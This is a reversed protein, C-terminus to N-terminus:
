IPQKKLKEEIESKLDGVVKAELPNEALSKEVNQVGNMVTAHDRGGFTEGIKKYPMGLIERCLYMAVHRAVAIQAVRSKGFLIDKTFGYHEAVIGAIKSASVVTGEAKSDLLPSVAEIAVGLDIPGMVGFTKVYNSLKNVAGELERVSTSFREAFFAFVEPSIESPDFGASIAKRRAIKVMYEPTPRYVQVALGQSFRTKLREDMGNLQGPHRDATLVIQKGANYLTQFVTFFADQTKIKSCFFQIDDVLLVDVERRFFDKLSGGREESKAFNMYVDFFDDATVYLVRTKPNKSLIRNAVAHLLHTKGLGSDGFLFLPNYLGGPADAVTLAAQMAELNADGQGTVFTEFTHNENIFSDSFLSFNQPGKENNEQNEGGYVFTIKTAPGLDPGLAKRVLGLYNKSLIECGLESGAVIRIEDDTWSDVYTHSFFSDYVVRDVDSERIVILARDWAAVIQSVSKSMPFVYWLGWFRESIKLVLFM